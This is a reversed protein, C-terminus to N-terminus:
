WKLLNSRLRKLALADVTRNFAIIGGFASTTLAFALRYAGIDDRSDGCWM